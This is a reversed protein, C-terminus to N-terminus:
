QVVVVQGGGGSDAGVAVVITGDPSQALGFPSILNELLPTVGDAGVMVVRGPTWGEGMVFEGGFEAAYITGDDTVLLGTVGTLGGYTEVLAGGSWREVRASGKPFPFGTLFGVYIDGDPGIEVSTPVPNDDSHSWAAVVQVGVESNWSILCNCSADAVYVTGDEAVALDAPNSESNPNGDPDLTMEVTLLDVFTKIRGTDRDLEVVASTFPITLDSSNGLALWM